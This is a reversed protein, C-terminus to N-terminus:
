NIIRDIAMGFELMSVTDSILHMYEVELPATKELLEEYSRGVAWARWVTWALGLRVSTGKLFAVSDALDMPHARRCKYCIGDPAATHVNGCIICRQTDGMKKNRCEQACSIRESTPHKQASNIYPKHEKM